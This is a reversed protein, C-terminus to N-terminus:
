TCDNQGKISGAHFQFRYPCAQLKVNERGKISGVFYRVAAASRFSYNFISCRMNSFTSSSIFM